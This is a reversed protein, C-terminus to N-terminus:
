NTLFTDRDIEPGDYNKVFEAEDEELFTVNMPIEIVKLDEGKTKQFIFSMQDYIDLADDVDLSAYVITNERAVVYVSLGDDDIEEDGYIFFNNEKMGHVRKQNIHSSMPEWLKKTNRRLLFQKKQILGVMQIYTPYNM